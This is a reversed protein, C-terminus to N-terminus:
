WFSKHTKRNKRNWKKKSLQLYSYVSVYLKFVPLVPNKEHGANALLTERQNSWGLVRVTSDRKSKL